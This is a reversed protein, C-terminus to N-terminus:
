GAERSFPNVFSVGSRAFDESNRSAVTLGTVKATAALLGDVVPLPDPVNMRGWEEAIARDVPLVRERHAESVRGLWSELVGGAEPDRRRISEIGRRIEGLTLVSLYVDEDDIEAFWSAVGPDAREGKRLESIVNTDILYAM